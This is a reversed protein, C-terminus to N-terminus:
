QAAKAAKILAKIAIQLGAPCKAQGEQCCFFGATSKETELPQLGQEKANRRQL